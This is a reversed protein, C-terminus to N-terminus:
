NHKYFKTTSVPTNNILNLPRYENNFRKHPHPRKQEPNPPNHKHGLYVIEAPKDSAFVIQKM